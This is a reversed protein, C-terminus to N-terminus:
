YNPNFQIKKFAHQIGAEKNCHNCIIKKPPKPTANRKGERQVLAKALAMRNSAPIGSMTGNWPSSPDNAPLFDFGLSKMNRKMEESFERVQENSNPCHAIIWYMPANTREFYCAHRPDILRGTDVCPKKESTGLSIDTHSWLGGPVNM